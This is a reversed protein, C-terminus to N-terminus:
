AVVVDINSITHQGIKITEDEVGVGDAGIVLKSRLGTGVTLDNVVGFIQQALVRTPAVVLVRIHPIARRHIRSLAPVLFALTKGSGTPAQVAYDRRPGRSMLQQILCAQVPFLKKIQVKLNEYIKAPILSKITKLKPEEPSIVIANQCWKPLDLKLKKTKKAAVDELIDFDNAPISSKVSELEDHDSEESSSKVSDDVSDIPEPTQSEPAKEAQIKRKLARAKARELMKNTKPKENKIPQNEPNYRQIDFLGNRDMRSDTLCDFDSEFIPHTGM